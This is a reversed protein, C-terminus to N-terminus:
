AETSSQLILRQRQKSPPGFMEVAIQGGSLLREMAQALARKKFGRAEPHREFLVPAYSASPSPSVTRGQDTFKRLLDLFVDDAASAEAATSTGKMSTQDDDRVFVGSRWRLGISIGVKAYNAKKVSLLREDEDPPDDRDRKPRELYLRSRVSNSWGTSGSSGTGSAMGSMSPHAILLVALDFDLALGRLLSIFSRALVRDNENGGFVDALTDLILLKPKVTGLLTQLREFVATRKLLGKEHDPVALVSERGVLSVIHLETLTALDITEERCIDILRRHIEDIEDEASLLVVPGSITEFGLWPMDSAVCVAVHKAILSKGLGGDGGLITVNRDPIIDAVVFKRPLPRSQALSSARMARAQENPEVHAGRTAAARMSPTLGSM